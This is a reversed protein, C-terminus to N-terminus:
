EDYDDEWDIDVPPVWVDMKKFPIPWNAGVDLTLEAYYAESDLPEYERKKGAPNMDFLLSKRTRNVTSHMRGRQSFRCWQFLNDPINLM